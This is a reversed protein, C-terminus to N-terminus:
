LLMGIIANWLCDLVVLIFIKQNGIKDLVVMYNLNKKLIDIGGKRRFEKQALKNNVCMQSIINFSYEKAELSNDFSNIIELLFDILKEETLEKKIL